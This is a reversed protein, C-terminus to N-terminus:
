SEHFLPELQKELHNRLVQQAIRDLLSPIGLPIMVGSKKPVEVQFVPARFYSGSSLCNCFRYLQVHLNSDLEEWTMGEVGAGGKETHIIGYSKLVMAMTIPESKTDFYDIM